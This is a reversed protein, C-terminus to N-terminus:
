KNELDEVMRAVATRLPPLDNQVTEWLRRLNVGFYDHALKDRMGAMAAWPVEPYRKRVSTPIKKGAEGIIELARIVAFVKEENAQFSEFDVGAVFLQAKETADLIDRVYDVYERKARM